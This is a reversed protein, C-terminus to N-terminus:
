PQTVSTDVEVKEHLSRDHILSAYLSHWQNSINRWDFSKEALVQAAQGAIALRNPNRLVGVLVDAINRPDTTIKFAAGVEFGGSLNCHETMFVPKGFAWAELVSMPLGESYSALIVADASAYVKEKDVGFLPGLFVVDSELGHEKVTKRLKEEYGGDDWGVIVLKWRRMTTGLEKKVLSWAVIVEAIGKKPHLRGLYAITNHSSHARRNASKPIDIGNPIKVVRDGFGLDTLSRAEGESLAHICTANRLNRWEYVAGAVRKKLGGHRLAWKDAMGHPSVVLPNGTRQKWVQSVISGYTWLGHLHVIDPRERDLIKLLNPSFLFSRPGLSKYIIVRVQKSVHDPADGAALVIDLGKSALIEYLRLMAPPIGGGRASLYRTLALIKM